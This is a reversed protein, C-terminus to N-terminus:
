KLLFIAEQKLRDLYETQRKIFAERKKEKEINKKIGDIESVIQAARIHSENGFQPKFKSILFDYQERMLQQPTKM